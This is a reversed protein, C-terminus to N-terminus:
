ADTFAHALCPVTRLPELRSASEYVRRRMISLANHSALFERVSHEPFPRQANGFLRQARLWKPRTIATSASPDASDDAARQPSLGVRQPQTM